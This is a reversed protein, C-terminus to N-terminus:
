VLRGWGFGASLRLVRKEGVGVCSSCCLCTLDVAMSLASKERKKKIIQTDHQERELAHKKTGGRRPWDEEGEREWGPGAASAEGLALEDSPRRGITSYGPQPNTVM